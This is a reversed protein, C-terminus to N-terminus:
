TTDGWRQDNHLQRHLFPNKRKAMLPDIKREDTDPKSEGFHAVAGAVLGRKSLVTMAPSTGAMWTKRSARFVHIGPVLGPMVLSHHAGLAYRM